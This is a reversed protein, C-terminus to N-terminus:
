FRVLNIFCKFVKSGEFNEELASESDEKCKCVGAIYPPHQALPPEVGKPM